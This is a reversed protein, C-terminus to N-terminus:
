GVAGICSSSRCRRPLLLGLFIAGAFPTPVILSELDDVTGHIYLTDVESALRFGYFERSEFQSALLGALENTNMPLSNFVSGPAAELNIVFRSRPNTLPISDQFWFALGDKSENRDVGLLSIPWMVPDLPISYWPGDGVAYEVSLMADHFLSTGSIGGTRDMDSRFRYRARWTDGVVLGTFPAPFAETGRAITIEGSARFELWETQAGAIGALALVGLGFSLQVAVIM